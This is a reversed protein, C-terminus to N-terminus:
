PGGTARRRAIAHRLHRGALITATPTPAAAMGAPSVIILITGLLLFVLLYVIPTELAKHFSTARPPISGGVCPNEIRQEVSQAVPGSCRPAFVVYSKRPRCTSKSIGPKKASDMAFEMVVGDYSEAIQQM